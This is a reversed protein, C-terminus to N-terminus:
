QEEITESMKNVKECLHWHAAPAQLHPLYIGAVRVESTIAVIKDHEAHSTSNNSYINYLQNHM